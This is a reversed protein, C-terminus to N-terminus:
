KWSCLKRQQHQSCFLPTQFQTLLKIQVMLGVFRQFEVDNILGILVISSLILDPRVPLNGLALNAGSSPDHVGRAHQIRQM